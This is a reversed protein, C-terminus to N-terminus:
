RNNKNEVFQYFKKALDVIEEPETIRSSIQESSTAWEIAMQLVDARIEYANRGAVPQRKMPVLDEEEPTPKSERKLPEVGILRKIGRKNLVIKGGVSVKDGDKEIPVAGSGLDRLDESRPHAVTNIFCKEVKMSDKNHDEQMSFTFVFDKNKDFSVYFYSLNACATGKISEKIIAQDEIPLNQMLVEPNSNLSLLVCIVTSADYSLHKPYQAVKDRFNELLKKTEEISKKKECSTNYDSEHEIQRDPTTVENLLYELNEGADDENSAHETIKQPIINKSMSEKSQGIFESTPGNMTIRSEKLQKLAPDLDINPIQSKPQSNYPYKNQIREWETNSTNQGYVNSM